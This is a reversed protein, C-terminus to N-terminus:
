SFKAECHLYGALKLGKQLGNTGALNYYWIDM